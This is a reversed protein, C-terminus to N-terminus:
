YLLPKTATVPAGTTTEESVSLEDVFATYNKNLNKVFGATPSATPSAGQILNMLIQHQQNRVAENFYDAPVGDVLLEVSHGVVKVAMPVGRHFFEKLGELGGFRVVADNVSVRCKESRWSCQVEVTAVEGDLRLQWVFRKKSWRWMRGCNSADFDVLEILTTATMTM